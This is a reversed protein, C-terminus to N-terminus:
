VPKLGNEFRAANRVYIQASMKLMAIQADTVTRVVKGPSGLVVSDDPIIKNETILSHAGILCNEGIVAGNLVTVGIGILSNDGITCGHLMVRHGVTVGEGVTLPKGPDTHLVSNDQINSRAGIKVRDNDGRLVAGFWVSSHECLEVNGVVDASPAVWASEDMVPAINDLRYISM